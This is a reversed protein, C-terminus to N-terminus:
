SRVELDTFQTSEPSWAVPSSYVKGLYPRAQEIVWDTPLLESFLPGKSPNEVAYRIASMVGAAVQIITPGFFKSGTQGLISGYWYSWNKKEGTIPNHNLILLAGVREEGELHDNFPDLVRCASNDIKQLEDISKNAMLARTQPCLKYVYHVTPCYDPLTLFRPLSVGEGHPIVVGEMLEDPVYSQHVKKYAPFKIAASNPGIIEALEPLKKEHTGWGVQVPELGEELLGICSWTNVFVKDDTVNKAVQTDIESCHIVEVGLYKSIKAFERKKVFERLEQDEHDKLVLDSIDLLGQLAFHSILGPNMGFEYIHTANSEDIIKKNLEAVL